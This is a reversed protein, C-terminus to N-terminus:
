KSPASERLRYSQHPLAASNTFQAQGNLGATVRGLVTWNVLDQSALVDYRHGVQGQINLRVEGSTLAYTTFTPLGGLPTYTVEHLRYLRLPYRRANADLFSAAGGAGTTVSGLATWNTSDQTTLLDYTHGVQGLIQLQMGAAAASAQLWPLSGAPTYTTEHLRYFRSPFQSADPDAFTFRGSAGVAVTGIATWAKLDTSALIDYTHGPPAIVSLPGGATGVPNMAMQPPNATPRFIIEDSYDSEVHNIDFATVAFYYTTGISLSAITVRNTNGVSNTHTYNRSSTGYYINYGTIYGSVDPNWALTLSSGVQALASMTPLSMLLLGWWARPFSAFAGHRTTFGPRLVDARFKIKTFMLVVVPKGSSPACILPTSGTM